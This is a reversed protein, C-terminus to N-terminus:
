ARSPEIHTDNIRPSVRSRTSHSFSVAYTSASSRVHVLLRASRPNQSAPDSSECFELLEPRAFPPPSANGGISCPFLRIPDGEPSPNLYPVSDKRPGRALRLM